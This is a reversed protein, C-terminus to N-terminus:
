KNKKKFFINILKKGKKNNPGATEKKSTNLSDQKKHFSIGPDTIKLNSGNPTETYAFSCYLDRRKGRQTIQGEAVAGDCQISADINRVHIRKFSCDEITATVTGIPLKGGKEQRIKATRQKSIDINFDAHCSVDGLDKIEMANGLQFTKSGLAGKLWKNNGDITFNFDLPGCATTLHGRFSEQKTVVDFHGQYTINGLHQLQKMMLRKVPFQSIVREAMGKVITMKEVDFSIVLGNKERLDNIYGKAAITLNNDTTSVRVNSFRMMDQTGSMQTKLTLPMSFDKMVPAFPRAIDRLLVNGKIEGTKYALQRGTKKDPLTIDANAINLSTTGQTLAIDQLWLKKLNSTANLCLGKIDIGATRDSITADEISLALTDKKATKVTCKLSATIDLHGADFWGRNPKKTNKRPLHNDTKMRLSDVNIVFGEGRRKVDLLAVSGTTKREELQYSIHAHDIILHRLDVSLKKSKKETDQGEHPKKGLSDILFQYNAASDSHEKILVAKLRDAELREITIDRAWLSNITLRADAEGMSLMPRGEQDDISLGYLSMSPVFLNVSVSDAKVNTGLRETLYATARKLLRQQVYSTNILLTGIGIIAVIATIIGATWKLFRKLAKSM